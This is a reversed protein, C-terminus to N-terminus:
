KIPARWLAIRTELASLTRALTKAHGKFGVRTCQRHALQVYRAATAAQEPTKATLQQAKIYADTALAVAAIAHGAPHQQPATRM